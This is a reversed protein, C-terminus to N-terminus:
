KSKKLKLLLTVDSLSITTLIIMIPIFNVLYRSRNEWLLLFLWIGLLMCRLLFKKDIKSLRNKLDMFCSLFMIIYMAITFGTTIYFFYDFYKGTPLVFEHLFSNNIPERMLKVPAYYTGDSWADLIKRSYFKVNGSIGRESIRKKIVELNFKVKDTSNTTDMVDEFYYGGYVNKQNNLGMMIWHTYPFPNEDVNVVHKLIIKETFNYGIILIMLSAIVIVVNFLKEKFNINKFLWYIFIAVLVVLISAKIKYGIFTVIGLCFLFVVNKLLSNENCINICIYFMLVPVFMSLTDSYFIPTYTIFPSCFMCMLLAFFAYNFGLIKKVCLYVLFISLDIFIINIIISLTLFDTYNFFNAINYVFTLCYILFYNNPYLHNLDLYGGSLAQKSAADFNGGFDWTPTVKLENAIFIQIIFFIFLIGFILSFRYKKSFEPLNKIKKFVFIFICLWVIVALILFLQNDPNFLHNKIFISGLIIFGFVLCFVVNILKSMFREM